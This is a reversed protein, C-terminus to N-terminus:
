DEALPELGMIEHKVCATWASVVPNATLLLTGQKDTKTRFEHYEDKICSVDSAENRLKTAVM